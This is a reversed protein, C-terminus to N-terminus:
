RSGKILVPRYEIYPDIQELYRGLSRPSRPALCCLLCSGPSPFIGGAAIAILVDRGLERVRSFSGLSRYAGIGVESEIFQRIAIKVRDTFLEEELGTNQKDRRDLLM